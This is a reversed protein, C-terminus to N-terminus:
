NVTEKFKNWWSKKKLGRTSNRIAEVLRNSDTQEYEYIGGVYFTGLSFTFLKPRFKTQVNISYEKCLDILPFLIDNRLKEQFIKYAKDEREVVNGLLDSKTMIIHISDVKKMIDANGENRFIDVMKKILTRQNVVCRELETIPRGTEDYGIQVERNIRVVNANPDIILFFVKRNDNRLLETAGSGMDEFTFVHDPNAAIGFAFEEGSMEVLNVNHVVGTDTRSRITAELTTVFTGPTPPVTVGADIYQQLAAAYDGGGSALNVNLLDSRSLGMLVCTKGTSPVGFFFVDTYGEKCEAQSSEIAKRIDPLDTNINTNRLTELVTATLVNANILEQDSVIGESLLKLLRSAEYLNPNTKMQRIEEQKLGLVMIQAQQKFPSSPNYRVYDNIVFIDNTNKVRDWEVIADLLSRAETIHLGEPFLTIYNQIDAVNDRKTLGWLSDDIENKHVTNPYKSLYELLDQQLSLNVSGWDAKEVIEAQAKLANDIISYQQLAYDVHNDTPRSGEWKRVYATLIDLLEQSPTGLLPEINAWEKQEIPNPLKSLQEEIYQKRDASIDPLDQLSIDGSQIYSFLTNINISNVKSILQKRQLDTLAM